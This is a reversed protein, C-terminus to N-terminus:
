TKLSQELKRRLEVATQKVLLLMRSDSAPNALGFIVKWQFFLALYESWRIRRTIQYKQTTKKNKLNIATATMVVMPRWFILFFFSGAQVDGAFGKRYTELVIEIGYDNAQPSSTEEPSPDSFIERLCCEFAQMLISDHAKNQELHRLADSRPRVELKRLFLRVTPKKRFM